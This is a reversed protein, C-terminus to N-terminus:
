EDIITEIFDNYANLIDPRPSKTANEAAIARNVAVHLVQLEAPSAERLFGTISELAGCDDDSRDDDGSAINIYTVAYVLADAIASM